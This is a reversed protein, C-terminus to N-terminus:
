HSQQGSVIEQFEEETIRRLNVNAAKLMAGAKGKIARTAEADEWWKMRDQRLEEAAHKIAHAYVCDIAQCEHMPATVGIGGRTDNWVWRSINLEGQPIAQEMEGSKPFRKKGWEEKWDARQSKALQEAQGAKAHATLPNKLLMELDM